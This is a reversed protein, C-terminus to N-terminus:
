GRGEVVEEEAGALDESAAQVEVLEAPLGEWRTIKFGLGCSM